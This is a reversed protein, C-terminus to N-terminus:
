TGRFSLDQPAGARDLNVTLRERLSLGTQSGNTHAAGTSPRSLAGALSPRAESAAIAAAPTAAPQLQALRQRLVANEVQGRAIQDILRPDRVGGRWAADSARAYLVGEATFQPQGNATYVPAGQPTTAFLWAANRAVIQEATTQERQAALREDILRLATQEMLPQMVTHPARLLNERWDAYAQVKQPLSPDYGPKSRLQGTEPDREVVAMWQENYEPAQWAPPQASASAQATRRQELYEAIQQAQPAVTRGLDAYYDRQSAQQHSRLLAELAAEDNDFPLETGRAKAYDRVGTWEPAPAAPQVQEPQVGSTVPGPSAAVPSPEPVSGTAATM